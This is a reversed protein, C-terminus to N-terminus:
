KRGIAFLHQATRIFLQGQSIAPSAQVMQDLPNKALVKFAPGAEIAPTPTAYSNRGEKRRITQKFVEKNWLIAGTKRDLAIVRCSVGADTATTVFVRNGWVIPSSWSEGPLETKWAINETASWKLPLNTEASHGQGNPGRFQPWNQANVVGALLLLLALLSLIQKM